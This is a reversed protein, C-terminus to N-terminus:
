FGGPSRPHGLVSPLMRRLFRGPREFELILDAEEQTIAGSSVADEVSSEFAARLGERVGAPTLELEELLGRQGLGDERAQELEELSIGLANTLLEARNVTGKYAIAALLLDAEDQTIVEEEVAQLIRAERAEARAEGLEELSIDLADALLQDRDIGSRRLRAIPGQRPEDPDRGWPRWFGARDGPPVQVPEESGDDAQSIDEAVGSTQAFVAAAGILLALLFIVGIIIAPWRHKIRM